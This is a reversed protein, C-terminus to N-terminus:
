EGTDGLKSWPLGAHGGGVVGVRGGGRERARGAGGVEHGQVAQPRLRARPQGGAPRAPEQAAGSARGRRLALAARIAPAVVPTTPRGWWWWRGRGAGGGAVARGPVARAPRQGTRGGTSAM